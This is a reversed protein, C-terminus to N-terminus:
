EHGAEKGRGISAVKHHAAILAERQGQSLVNNADLIVPTSGNLWAKVDMNRYQEHPVAFVIADVGQPSPLQPPLREDLEPWYEVFPDHCIVKAGLSRANEVFVQSPSYRTDGIDQRYSVGLLLVSKGRLEGNLLQQIKEISVLPMDRNIKVAMECFPFKMDQIGFLERAALAALLPDKTLCYGGVGFGPQRINSHTPRQRIASIVEFLDIGVTEAFRSWEEIFAITTARYSNELVKGIESATTSRLRTLPYADVDIIRSLFRECADAAKTTYGAYVRWFSVISDFYNKGPMIREYSHALLFSDEPFGREKLASSLEPAVIKECAGPPVTTEIIVLCGPKMFRGITRIATRFGDLELSPKEKDDYKVDLHVDVIITSALSFAEPDSTAILNGAQHAELLATSLKLDTTKFPFMGANIDQIKAMGGGTPLDVGIVNFRRSGASDRANAVAIAMAAGVFGLGQVCVIPRDIDSLPRGIKNGFERFSQYRVSM